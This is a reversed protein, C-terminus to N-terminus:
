KGRRSRRTRGKSRPKTKELYDEFYLDPKKNTYGLIYDREDKSFTTNGFRANSGSGATHMDQLKVETVGVRRMRSANERADDLYEHYIQLSEPYQEDLKDKRKKDIPDGNRRGGGYLIKTMRKRARAKKKLIKPGTNFVFADQTNHPSIRVGTVAALTEIQRKERLKRKKDADTDGREERVKPWAIKVGTDVFGPRLGKWIGRMMAEMKVDWTEENQDSMFQRMEKDIVSVSIEPSLFPELIKLLPKTAAGTSTDANRGSAIIDSFWSYPNFSSPNWYTYNGNGKDSVVAMQEVWPPSDPLLDEELEPDFGFMQSVLNATQFALYTTIALGVARQSGILRTDPNKIERAAQLFQNRTTRIMEASFSVFSGLFPFTRLGEVIPYIKSYNPYTDRVISASYEEIKTQQDKTLESFPKKYFAKSAKARESYYSAIRYFDDVDSYFQRPGKALRKMWKPAKEEFVKQASTGSISKFFEQLERSVVNQDAVQLEVLRNFEVNRDLLRGDKSAKRGKRITQMAQGFHKMNWHGNATMWFMASIFNRLQTVPSLITKGAKIAGNTVNVFNIYWPLEKRTIKLFDYVEPDIWVPSELPAFRPSGQTTGRGVRVDPALEVKNGSKNIAVWGDVPTTSMFKGMGLEQLDQLMTTNAIFQALKNTTNAYNLDPNKIEGYFDRIVKPIDKRKKLFNVDKSGEMSGRTFIQGRNGDLIDKMFMDLNDESSLINEKDAIEKAMNDRLSVQRSTMGDQIPGLRQLKNQLYDVRDQLTRRYLDKARDWVREPVKSSWNKDINKMYIRNVYKGENDKIIELLPDSVVGLSRMKRSLGDIHDRIASTLNGIKERQEQTVRNSLLDLSGGKIILDVSERDVKSLNEMVENLSRTLTKVQTMQSQIYGRSRRLIDFERENLPGTSRFKNRVQRSFKKIFDGLRNSDFYAEDDELANEYDNLKSENREATATDLEGETLDPSTYKDKVSDFADQRSMGEKMLTRIENTADDIKKQRQGQPTDAYTGPGDLDQDFAVDSPERNAEREAAKRLENRAKRDEKVQKFHRRFATINEFDEITLPKNQAIKQERRTKIEEKTRKRGFGKSKFYDRVESLNFFDKIRLPKGDAIRQRRKEALEAKRRQRRRKRMEADSITEGTEPDLNVGDPIDNDIDLNSTQFRENPDSNFFSELLEMDTDNDLDFNDVEVEIPSKEGSEERLSQGGDTTQTREDPVSDQDTQKRGDDERQRESPQGESANQNEEANALTNQNNFQGEYEDILVEDTIRNETLNGQEDVQFYEEGVRTIPTQDEGVTITPNEELVQVRDQETTPDPLQEQVPAPETDIDQQEDVQSTQNDQETTPTINEDVDTGSEVGGEDTINQDNALDGDIDGSVDPDQPQIGQQENRRTNLTNIRNELEPDNKALVTVNGDIIDQQLDELVEELTERPVTEGNVQYVESSEDPDIDLSGEEDPQTTLAPNVEPDSSLMGKLKAQAIPAFVNPAGSAIEAIGELGISTIDLPEGAVLQAALEGGSGGAVEIMGAKALQKGKAVGKLGKTVVKAGVAGAMRGSIADLTGITIGRALAKNTISRMADADELLTRIGEEDMELGRENMEQEFLERYKGTTELVGSALGTAIPVTVATGVGGAAAGAGAGAAMISGSVTNGVLGALSEGILEPVITRGNKMFSLWGKGTKFGGADIFEQFEESMGLSNARESAEIYRQIQEPSVDAQKLMMTLTEGTADGSRNGRAIARAMDDIWDGVMTNNLRGLDLFNKEKEAPKIGIDNQFEAYSIGNGEFGANTFVARRIEEDESMDKKFEDYPIGREEFGENTWIEKLLQDDM